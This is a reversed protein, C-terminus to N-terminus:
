PSRASSWRWVARSDPLAPRQRYSTSATPRAMAGTLGGVNIISGDSKEIASRHVSQRLPVSRRPVVGTIYRWEEFSMHEIHKEGRLANNQHLYDIRGFRDLAAKAMVNVANADIVDALAVM